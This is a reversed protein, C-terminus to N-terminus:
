FEINLNTAPFIVPVRALRRARRYESEYSLETLVTSTAILSSRGAPGSFTLTLIPWETAVSLRIM